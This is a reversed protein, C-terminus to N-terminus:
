PQKRGAIQHIKWLANVLKAVDEQAERAVSGPAGINITKIGAETVCHRTRLAELDQHATAAIEALQTGQFAMLAGQRDSLRSLSDATALRDRAAECCSSVAECGPCPYIKAPIGPEPAAPAAQSAEQGGEQHEMAAARRRNFSAEQEAAGAVCAPCQDHPVGVLHELPKETTTM